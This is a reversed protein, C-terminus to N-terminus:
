ENIFSDLWISIAVVGLLPNWPIDAGCDYLLQLERIGDMNFLGSDALAGSQLKEDFFASNEEMFWQRYPITGGFPLKPCNITEPPLRDKMALKLVNKYVPGKRDHGIKYQVPIHCALEVMAVDLFPSRIELSHAM